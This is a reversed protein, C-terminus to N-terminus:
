EEILIFEVRRNQHWNDRDDYEAIVRTGGLGVASLRGRDVGLGVLYDLVTQAREESLPQLGLIRPSGTEEEEREATGPPTTPNAHCEIRVSYGDFRNLIEAIRSLIMHNLEMADSDLGGFDGADPGFMVPPAVVRLAAGPPVEQEAAAEAQPAIVLAYGEFRSLIGEIFRLISDSEELVEPDIDGSDEGRSGFTIPPIIIVVEADALDGRAGPAEITLTQGELGGLFEKIRRITDIDEETHGADPDISLSPITMRFAPESEDASVGAAGVAAVLFAASLAAMTRCFRTRKM